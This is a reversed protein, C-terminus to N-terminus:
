SSCKIELYMKECSWLIIPLCNKIVATNMPRTAMINDIRKRIWNAQGPSLESKRLKKKPSCHAGLPTKFSSMYRPKTVMWPVIMTNKRNVPPKDPVNELIRIGNCSPARSIADPKIFINDYQNNANDEIMINTEKNM